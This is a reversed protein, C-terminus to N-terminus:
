VIVNVTEFMIIEPQWLCVTCTESKLRAILCVTSTASTKSKHDQDKYSHDPDQDEYKPSAEMMPVSHLTGVRKSLFFELIKEPGELVGFRKQWSARHAVSGVTHPPM